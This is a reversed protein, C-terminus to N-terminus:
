RVLRGKGGGARPHGARDARRVVHDLEQRRQRRARRPRHALAALHVQVRRRLEEDRAPPLALEAAAVEVEAGRLADGRRVADPELLGDLLGDRAMEARQARDLM